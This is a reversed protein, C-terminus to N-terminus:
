FSVARLIKRCGAVMEEIIRDVGEEEGILGAVQGAMLSGGEVDGEEVARSLGGSALEELEEKSCGEEELRSFRKTMKNGLARVPAGLSEGTVTTARENAKLIQRKYAPHIGSELSAAFRTGVQVGEAGLALAAAMGRGDAIGGAAIVPIDVSEVVSPVLVMTTVQGVHGGAELGEAIVGDAGYREVRRALASAAIVPFVKIGSSKLEDMYKSPNGAGTTVVPVREEAVLQVKEEVEPEMLMLNVGFPRETMERVKEIEERLVETEMGGSAIIGLGGGESVAAVLEARSVHAMGGLFIPFDIELSRCIRNDRDADDVEKSSRGM